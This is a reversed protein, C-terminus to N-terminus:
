RRWGPGDCGDGDCGWGREGGGRCGGDWGGSRQNGFCPGGGRYGGGRPGQRFGDGDQAWLPVGDKDRFAYTKGEVVAKFVVIDDEDVVGEVAAQGGEKLPMGTGALYARNGFRLLYLRKGTNLLWEGSVRALTGKVTEMAGPLEGSVARERPSAATDGALLVAPGGSLALLAAAVVCLLLRKM